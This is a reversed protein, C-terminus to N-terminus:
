QLQVCRCVDRIRGCSPCTRPPHRLELARKAFGAQLMLWVAVVVLFTLTLGHLHLIM